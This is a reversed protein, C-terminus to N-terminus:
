KNSAIRRGRDSGEKAEAEYHLRAVSKYEAERHSFIMFIWCGLRGRIAPIYYFMFGKVVDVTTIGGVLAKSKEM